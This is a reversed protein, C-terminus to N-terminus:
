SLDSLVKGSFGSSCTLVMKLGYFRSRLPTGFFRELPSVKLFRFKFFKLMLDALKVWIAVGAIGVVSRSLRIKIAGFM